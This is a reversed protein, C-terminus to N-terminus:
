WMSASFLSNLHCILTLIGFTLKPRSAVSYMLSLLKGCVIFIPPPPCLFLDENVSFLLDESCLPMCLFAFGFLGLVRLLFLLGHARVAVEIRVIAGLVLQCLVVLAM